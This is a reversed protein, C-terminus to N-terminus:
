YYGEVSFNKMEGSPSLGNRAPAAPAGWTRDRIDGLEASSGHDLRSWGVSPLPSM